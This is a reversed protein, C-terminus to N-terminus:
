FITMKFRKLFDSIPCFDGRWFSSFDGLFESIECFFFDSFHSAGFIGFDCIIYDFIGLIAFFQSSDYFFIVSFM